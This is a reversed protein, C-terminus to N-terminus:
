PNTERKDYNKGEMLAKLLEEYQNENFDHRIIQSFMLLCDNWCQDKTTKTGYKNLFDAFVNIHGRIFDTIECHAFHKPTSIDLGSCEIKTAFYRMLLDYNTKCKSKKVVCSFTLYYGTENDVINCENINVLTFLEYLTLKM